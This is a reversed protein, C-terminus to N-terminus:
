FKAAIMCPALRYEYIKNHTVLYFITKILKNMCAVAAVKHCKNYPQKKLKNYYDVVHNDRLRQQKIMNMIVIYLIKRLHKNGRKNIKDKALYKGSQYRRIDIGAYANMQKHTDFRRIEGMEAIIRVATNEGISPITRLVGYEELTQALAVMKQICEEKQSLLEQYRKAYVCAQECVVDTSSAAPYSNNASELLQVAKEEAQKASIRKGTSAMIRNKIVTRSHALILEPHPFLQVVNLFLESKTKFITELEPFTEQLVKHLRSRVVGLEDDLEDYHRSLRKLQRYIDDTETEIRRENSFHTLALQHADSRDTKHIRLSDGQLKAELPNLLCYSYGNERMFRELPRSYVGTAEFVIHPQEGYGDTLEDMLEKLALFSSRTHTMEKELVCKKLANYLVVYSKGMSVDFAIVHKM